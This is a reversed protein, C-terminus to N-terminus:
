REPHSHPNPLDTPLQQRKDPRTPEAPAGWPNQGGRSHGIACLESVVLPGVWGQAGARDPLSPIADGYANVGLVDISPAQEQVRRINAPDTDAIVAMTPHNPDLSKVLRAAEEIAPWVQSNDTLEAEVENGIGWMLM